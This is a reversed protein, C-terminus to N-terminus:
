HALRYHMVLLQPSLSQRCELTVANTKNLWAACSSLMEPVKAIEENSYSYAIVYLQKRDHFEVHMRKDNYLQRTTNKALPLRNTHFVSDNLYAWLAEFDAPTVVTKRHLFSDSEDQEYKLRPNDLLSEVLIAQIPKDSGGIYNFQIHRNANYVQNLRRHILVQAELKAGSGLLAYAFALWTLYTKLIPPM